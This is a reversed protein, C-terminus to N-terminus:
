VGFVLKTLKYWTSYAKKEKDSLREYFSKPKATPITLRPTFVGVWGKNTTMKIKEDEVEEVSCHEKCEKCILIDEYVGSGCCSSYKDM